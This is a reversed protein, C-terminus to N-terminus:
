KLPWKELRSNSNNAKLDEIIKDTYINYQVAGPQEELATERPVVEDLTEPRIEDALPRYTM